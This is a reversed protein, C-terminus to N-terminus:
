SKRIYSIDMQDVAFVIVATIPRHLLSKQNNKLWGPERYAWLAIAMAAIEPLIVESM